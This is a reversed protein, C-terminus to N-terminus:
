RKYIVSRQASLTAIASSSSPRVLSASAMAVLASADMRMSALLDQVAGAERIQEFAERVRRFGDPDRDPKHVKVLRTYARRVEDPAADDAVGLIRRAEDITM